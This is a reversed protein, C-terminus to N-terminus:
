VKMYFYNKSDHTSIDIEESLYPRSQILKGKRRISLTYGLKPMGYESAQRRM